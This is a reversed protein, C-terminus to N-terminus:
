QDAFPDFSGDWIGADGPLHKQFEFLEEPAMQWSNAQSPFVKEEVDRRYEELAQMWIQRTQAYARAMKFTKASIGILDHWVLVQGDCGQGAGIGITSFEFRSTIEQAVEETMAELVVAFCGINQLAYGNGVLQAAEERTKGQVVSGIVLQSQPTFGIHGM